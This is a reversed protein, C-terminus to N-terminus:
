FLLNGRQVSMSVNIETKSLYIILLMRALRKTMQVSAVLHILLTYVHIMVNRLMIRRTAVYNCKVQNLHLRSIVLFWVIHKVKQKIAITLATIRNLVNIKTKLIM